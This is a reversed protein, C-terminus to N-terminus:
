NDVTYSRVRLFKFAKEKKLSFNTIEGERDDNDSMRKRVAYYNVWALKNHRYIGGLPKIQLQYFFRYYPVSGNAIEITIEGSSSITWKGTYIKQSDKTVSEATSPILGLETHKLLYPVINKPDEVSLVKVCTGHPYSRLYRSYTITRVPNSWSSSFEGKGGELYYNVVSIYCGDYKIFPRHRLMYKWSNNYQPVVLHQNNPIPLDCDQVKLRDELTLNELYEVNEQYVQKSYVLFCLKRWMAKNGFGLFANHRCTISFNFWSQPSTVLLIELIQEWIFALMNMLPSIPSVDAIEEHNDLGLGSFKITLGDHIHSPNSPDFAQAEIHEYSEILKDVDMDKLAAEDIRRATNKGHKQKLKHINHPVKENRYLLDVQDNLRFASRYKEVADAMKGHSEKEIAEEFLLIAQADNESLQGIDGNEPEIMSSDRIDETNSSRSSILSTSMTSFKFHLM